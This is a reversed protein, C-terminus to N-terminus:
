LILPLLFIHKSTRTRFGRMRFDGTRFVEQELFIRNRSFFFLVDVLSGCICIIMSNMHLYSLEDIIITTTMIIEKIKLLNFM